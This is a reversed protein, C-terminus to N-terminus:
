CLEREFPLIGVLHTSHMPMSLVTCITGRYYVGLCSGFALSRLLGKHQATLALEQAAKSVLMMAGLLRDVLQSAWLGWSLTATDLSSKLQLPWQSCHGIM